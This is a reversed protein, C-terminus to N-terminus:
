RQWKKNAIQKIIKLHRSVYQSPKENELPPNEDIYRMTYKSDTDFIREEKELKVCLDKLIKQTGGAILDFQKSDVYMGILGKWVYYSNRPKNFDINKWGNVNTKNDM